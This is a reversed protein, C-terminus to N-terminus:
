HSKSDDLRRVSAACLIKEAPGRGVEMEAAPSEDVPQEETESDPECTLKRNMMQDYM